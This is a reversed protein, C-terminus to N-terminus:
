RVFLSFENRNASGGPTCDSKILLFNNCKRSSSSVPVPCPRSIALSNYNYGIEPVALSTVLLHANSSSVYFMTATFWVQCLLRHAPLRTLCAFVVHVVIPSPRQTEWVYGTNGFLQPRNSQPLNIVKLVKRPKVWYKRVFAQIWIVFLMVVAEKRTRELEDNVLSGWWQVSHLAVTM